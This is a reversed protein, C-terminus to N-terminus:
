DVLEPEPGARRHARHEFRVRRMEDRGSKQPADRRGSGCSASVVTRRQQHRRV